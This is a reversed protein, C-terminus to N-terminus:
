EKLMQFYPTIRKKMEEREANLEAQIKGKDEQLAKIMQSYNKPDKLKKYGKTKSIYTYDNNEYYDQTMKLVKAYNDADVALYIFLGEELLTDYESGTTYHEQGLNNLDETRMKGLYFLFGSENYQHNRFYEMSKEFYKVPYEKDALKADSLVKKSDIQAIKGVALLSDSKEIVNKYLLLVEKDSQSFIMINFLFLIPVIIKRNM